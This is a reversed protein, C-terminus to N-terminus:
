TPVGYLTDKELANKVEQQASAEKKGEEQNGAFFDVSSNYWEVPNVADPLQSCASLLSIAFTFVAFHGGNTLLKNDAM